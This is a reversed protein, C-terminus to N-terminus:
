NPEKAAASRQELLTIGYLVAQKKDFKASSLGNKIACVSYGRLCLFM